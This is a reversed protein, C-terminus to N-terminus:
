VLSMFHWGITTALTNAVQAHRLFEVICAMNQQQSVRTAFFTADKQIKSLDRQIAAVVKTAKPIQTLVHSIQRIMVLQHKTHFEQIRSVCEEITDQDLQEDLLECLEAMLCNTAYTYAVLIMIPDSM